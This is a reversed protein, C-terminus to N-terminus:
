LGMFKRPLFDEQNGYPDRFEQDRRFVNKDPHTKGRHDLYKMLELNVYEPVDVDAKALAQRLYSEARSSHAIADGLVRTAESPNHFGTSNEAGVFVVRLFAKMYHDKAKQYLKRDITKGKDQERHTMQFLKAVVATQYGARNLLSVTRDQHTIVQKRLWDASETHCQACARMNDKLPSTVDHDSIKHPGSRKYPMHCDACALGANFHPSSKTFLEMEPHRIYPMRFGTVQQTWEERVYDTRLDKIIKEISINGWSADTWPPRVDGAVKGKKDRPVYYTMHCQGCVLIRKEQHSMKKKGLMDLGKNIHLKNGITLDMTNNDHCDICAPGLEQHEEPFMKVAKMFEATLYDMGKEQVFKKHYPTKCALCVGGPSVRSKDIEIQDIVAYFHGRPRNYEIGFGWGKYLLAQFPFESLRDYIIKDTDWGRQYKSTGAPKPEKTKLWSEYHEPFIKGWVKPDYTGDPISGTKFTEAKEPACGSMLLTLTVFLISYLLQRIM